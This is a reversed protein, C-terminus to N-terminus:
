RAEEPRRHHLRVSSRAAVFQQEDSAGSPGFPSTKSVFVQRNKRRDPEASANAQAKADAAPSYAAAASGLRM